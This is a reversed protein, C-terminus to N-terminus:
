LIRPDQGLLAKWYLSLWSLHRFLDYYQAEPGYM